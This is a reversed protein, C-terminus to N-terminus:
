DDKDGDAKGDCHNCGFWYSYEMDDTNLNGCWDCQEIHTFFEFCDTCFYSEGRRVVTQYGDCNSCNGLDLSDDGDIFAIHAAAHDTLADVLHAPEIGKGCHECNTYGGDTIVISKECHPCELEVQAETHDCVLCSLLAIQDDIADPIAAEFGCASCAKPAKGAERKVELDPTLAQFKAALYRQHKKMAKDARAIESGFDQFYTNWRHLLRHLHFWARCQEAVIEIKSAEDSELGSHFFHVMKNRHNALARFSKFADDSIKEEAIAQLRARADQLTVSIFDGAKFKALDAQDPKSVILSWHEQMLRAKLLMEIASCFHIVSYKPARDFEAVAHQLFDFANRTLSDFIDQYKKSCGAASAGGSIADGALRGALPTEKQRRVQKSGQKM